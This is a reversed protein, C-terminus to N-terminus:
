VRKDAVTPAVPAVASFTKGNSGAGLKNAVGRANSSGIATQLLTHLPPSALNGAPATGGPAGRITQNWKLKHTIGQVCSSLIPPVCLSDFCSRTNCCYRNMRAFCVCM